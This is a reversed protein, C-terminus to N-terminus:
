PARVSNTPCDPSCVSGHVRVRFGCIFLFAQCLWASYVSVIRRQWKSIVGDTLTNAWVINMRSLINWPITTLIMSGFFRLPVLPFLLKARVQEYLSPQEPRNFAPLVEAAYAEIDAIRKNEAADIPPM